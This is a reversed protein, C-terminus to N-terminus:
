RLGTCNRYTSSRTERQSFGMRVEDTSIHYFRKVTGVVRACEMVVCTGVVNNSFFQCSNGFSLDVHSMAALHFVCDVKYTRMCKHVDDLSTIDGHHFHFNPRSDLMRSNNRSSCYDLKDFSIVNYSDPYKM